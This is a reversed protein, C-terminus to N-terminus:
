FNFIKQSASRVEDNASPNAGISPKSSLDIGKISKLWDLKAKSVAQTVLSNIIKDRNQLFYKDEAIQRTDYQDDKVYRNGFYDVLDFDNLEQKLSIKDEDPISFKADISVEEDKYKVEFGTFENLGKDVQSLYKEREAKATQESKTQESQIYQNVYEKPDVVSAFEKAKSIIDPFSIDKKYSSLTEKAVRADKKLEREVRKTEKELKKNYSALEDESMYETDEKTVGYRSDFEERIEEPTLDPYQYALSMMVADSDDMEKLNSLLKQEYLMDSVSSFDGNILSEYISKSEENNWEFEFSKPEIGTLGDAGENATDGTQVESSQGGDSQGENSLAVQGETQTGGETSAANTTQGESTNDSQSEVQVPESSYGDIDFINKDM